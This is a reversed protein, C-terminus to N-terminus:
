TSDGILLRRANRIGVKVRVEPSADLEDFLDFQLFTQQQLDYYDTGFLLRDSWRELFQKGFPKDRLLAHAGSSSLDGYLNPYTALLRDLAGGPAVPGKPYGVQLDSQQIGGAISSWWGKGHGILVLQPFQRLVDELGPLGPQDMNAANDLHFLVPLQVKSCAEYLRLNPPANIPLRAKHEGFGRAGADQYRKLMGEVEAPTTLHSEVTRPDIACFPILRDRHEATERLVDDTSIPYWFSEPSVLPLVAAREIRHIDIWRLLHDATVPGRDSGYWAHTLHVHTDWYTYDIPQREAFVPCIQPSALYVGM